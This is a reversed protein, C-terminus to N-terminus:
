SIAEDYYTLPETEGYNTIFSQAVHRDPPKIQTRDRLEMQNYQQQQNVAYTEV